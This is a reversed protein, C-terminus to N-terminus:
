GSSATAAASATSRCSATAATSRSRSCTRGSRAARTCSRRRGAPPGCRCSRTTTSRCTGSTPTRRARRGDAFTARPVLAGSRDPARGPRDARRRRLAGPEARWEREYGVRGGHGYRGRVFMLPGLAGADVLARAKRFRRTIAITSASACAARRAGRAAAILPRARAGIRAAPKEVLVHKGADLAACRSRGGARRQTTAVIVVDVDPDPSPTAGTADVRRVRARTRALADARAPM